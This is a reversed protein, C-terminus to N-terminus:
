QSYQAKALKIGQEFREVNRTHVLQRLRDGLADEEKKGAKRQGVIEGALREMEGHDRGWERADLAIKNEVRGIVDNYALAEERHFVFDLMSSTYAIDRFKSVLVPDRSDPPRQVIQHALKEIESYFPGWSERSFDDNDKARAMAVRYLFESYSEKWDFPPHAKSEPEAIIRNTNALSKDAGESPHQRTRHFLLMVLEEGRDAVHQRLQKLAEKVDKIGSNSAASDTLAQLETKLESLGKDVTQFQGPLSDTDAQVAKLVEDLDAM